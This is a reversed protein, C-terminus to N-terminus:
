IENQPLDEDNNNNKIFAIVFITMLFVLFHLHMKKNIQEM